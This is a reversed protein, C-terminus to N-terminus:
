LIVVNIIFVVLCAIDSERFIFISRFEDCHSIYISQLLVNQFPFLIWLEFQERFGKNTMIEFHRSKRLKFGINDLNSNNCYCAEINDMVKNDLYIQLELHFIWKELIEQNSFSLIIVWLIHRYINLLWRLILM